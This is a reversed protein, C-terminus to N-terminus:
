ENFMFSDWSEDKDDDSDDENSPSPSVMPLPQKKLNMISIKQRLEERKTRLRNVREELIQMNHLEEEMKQAADEKDLTLEAEEKERKFSYEEEISKIKIQEATLASASIVINTTSELRETAAIDAEFAAWENEDIDPKPLINLKNPSIAPSQMNAETTPSNELSSFDESLSTAQRLRKQNENGDSVNCAKRKRSESSNFKSEHQVSEKEIPKEQARQM